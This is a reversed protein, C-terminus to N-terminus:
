DLDDLLGKMSDRMESVFSDWAAPNWMELHTSNGILCGNHVGALYGPWLSLHPHGTGFEGPAAYFPKDCANWYDDPMRFTGQADISIRCNGVLKGMAQEMRHHGRELLFESVHVLEPYELRFLYFLDWTSCKGYPIQLSFEEKCALPDVVLQVHFVLRSLAIRM